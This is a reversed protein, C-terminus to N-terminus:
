GVAASLAGLIFVPGIFGVAGLGIAWWLRRTAPVRDALLDFVLSLLLWGSSTLTGVTLATVVAALGLAGGGGVVVAGASLVVALVVAVTAGM